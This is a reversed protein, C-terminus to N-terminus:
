GKKVELADSVKDAITNNFASEFGAKDGMIAAKVMDLTMPKDM